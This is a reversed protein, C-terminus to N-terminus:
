SSRSSRHCDLYTQHKSLRSSFGERAEYQSILESRRKYRRYLESEVIEGKRLELCRILERIFRESGMKKLEDCLGEFLLEDAITEGIYRSRGLPAKPPIRPRNESSPM